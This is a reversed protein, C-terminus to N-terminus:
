VCGVVQSAAQVQSASVGPKKQWSSLTRAGASAACPFLEWKQSGPALRGAMWRMSRSSVRSNPPRAAHCAFLLCFSRLHAALQRVSVELYEGTALLHQESIYTGGPRYRGYTGYGIEHYSKGVMKKIINETINQDDTFVIFLVM